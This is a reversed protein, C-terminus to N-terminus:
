GVVEASTTPSEAVRPDVDYDSRKSKFPIVEVEHPVDVM